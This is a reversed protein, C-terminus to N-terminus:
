PWVKKLNEIVSDPCFSVQPEFIHGLNHTLLVDRVESSWTQINLVESFSKDWLYIQKTLRNNEMKTLRFFERIMRIQARYVPEPWSIEALVGASTAHKPVGLFCRAARLQIKNISEKSAFGWIEAGYDSVSCVACEFLMSYISYPLGGNKITKTILSGLARGAADAQAQASVEFNLFENLTTGLYKYTKCYAVTRYNFLFMFKSQPCRPNRVHMINTKTLNVELRWKHCWNEVINLLFQLDNENSTMLIIDDAYMLINIFLDKYSDNFKDNTVKETLNIGVKTAKVEEALDNIFISFLTASINDGQKVGIPCDFFDTEYENLLIKSRPSKYMALIANYFKGSVGMQSLKYFLLNRDVSDFAKQFDIYSLFTSLGLAKRNRLISCLVLIHDICSRSARFGNQEEVLIKNNELFKQLRRNLISSYIKAVSCMLTICRNQLPDRADKDKKPIPKIHSSDWETPNLGSSFCLQFFKFFLLKANQNKIAENPLKIVM